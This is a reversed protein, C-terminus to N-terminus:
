LTQPVLQHKRQHVIPHQQMAFSHRFLKVMLAAEALFNARLFRAIDKGSLMHKVAVPGWETELADSLGSDAMMAPISGAFSMM